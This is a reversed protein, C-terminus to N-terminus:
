QESSRSSRSSSSSSRSGDPRQVTQSVVFYTDVAQNVVQGLKSMGTAVNGQLYKPSRIHRYEVAHNMRMMRIMMIMMIMM